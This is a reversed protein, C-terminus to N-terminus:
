DQKSFSKNFFKVVNGPDLLTETWSKRESSFNIWVQVVYPQYSEKLLKLFGETRLKTLSDQYHQLVNKQLLSGAVQIGTTATMSITSAQQVTHMAVATAAEFPSINEATAAEHLSKWYRRVENEPLLKRLDAKNASARTEAVFAKLEEVSLPPKDFSSAMNGSTNQIAKLIDDVNHITSSEDIIGQKKLEVALERLYTSSGYAIDSVAALIWMPSVHLTAMGAMDVFNGIAKKALHEGAEDVKSNQSDFGGVTDTLFNLSNDIAVEYSKSSQFSQPIMFQAAERVTGATVGVASRLVREPLSLGYLLSKVFGPNEVSEVAPPQDVVPEPSFEVDDSNQEVWVGGCAPCHAKSGATVQVSDMPALCDPCSLPSGGEAHEKILFEPKAQLSSNGRFFEGHCTQCTFQMSDIVGPTLLIRCYPCIAMPQM